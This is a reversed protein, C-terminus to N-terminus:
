EMAVTSIETAMNRVRAWAAAGIDLSCSHGTFVSHYRTLAEDQLFSRIASDGRAIPYSRILLLISGAKRSDETLAFHKYILHFASLTEHVSLSSTQLLHRWLETSEM